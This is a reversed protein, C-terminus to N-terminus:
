RASLRSPKARPASSAARNRAPLARRCKSSPRHERISVRTCGHIIDVDINGSHSCERRVSSGTAPNFAHGTAFSSVQARDAALVDLLDGIGDKIEAVNQALDVPVIQVPRGFLM